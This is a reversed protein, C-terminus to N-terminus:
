IGACAGGIRSAAALIRGPVHSRTQNPSFEREIMTHSFATQRATRYIRESHKNELCICKRQWLFGTQM